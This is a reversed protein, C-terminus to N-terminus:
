GEVLVFSVLVAILLQIAIVVMVRRVIFDIAEMPSLPSGVVGQTCGAGVSVIWVCRELFFELVLYVVLIIAIIAVLSRVVRGSMFTMTWVIMSTIFIHILAVVVGVIIFALHTINM